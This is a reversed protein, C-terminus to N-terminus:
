FEKIRWAPNEKVRGSHPRKTKNRDKSNSCKLKKTTPRKRNTPKRRLNKWLYKRKRNRRSLSPRRPSAERTLRVPSPYRPLLRRRRICFKRSRRNPQLTGNSLKKRWWVEQSPTSGARTRPLKKSM